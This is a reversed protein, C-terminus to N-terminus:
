ETRNLNYTENNITHFSIIDKEDALYPVEQNGKVIRIKKGNWPNFIRCNGGLNSKIRVDFIEGEFTRKASVRFGGEAAYNEMEIKGTPPVAPFIHISQYSLLLHDPGTPESPIGLRAPLYWGNIRSYDDPNKQIHELTRKAIAINEPLSDLGIEDGWCVPTLPVPINYRIPPAGDVDVWIPGTETQFTPYNALRGTSKKWAAAEASDIGLITAAEASARLLYRTLTLASTCDKNREFNKTLGWHEPSVTPILHLLGDSGETLYAQMFRACESMVPYALEKLFGIDGTYRYYLWLPKCVIGNLGFDQEWTLNTHALGQRCRLPFHLLPYMAGPLGYVDRANEQAGPLMTHIM